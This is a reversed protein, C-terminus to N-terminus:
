PERLALKDLYPLLETEPKALGLRSVGLIARALYRSMVEGFDKLNIEANKSPLKFQKKLAEGHVILSRLKYGVRIDNFIDQREQPTSGILNAARLSLKYSIEQNNETLLAELGIFTDIIGDEPAERDYSGNFRRLALGLRRDVSDLISSHRDWLERLASVDEEAFRYTHPGFRSATVLRQTGPFGYAWGLKRMVAHENIQIRGPKLLRLACVLNQLQKLYGWYEKGGENSNALGYVKAVFDHPSLSRHDSANEGDADWIGRCEEENYNRIEFDKLRIPSVSSGFGKLVSALEVQCIGDVVQDSLAKTAARLMEDSVHPGGASEVLEVVPDLFFAQDIGAFKGVAVHSALAQIGAKLEPLNRLDDYRSLVFWTWDVAQEVKVSTNIAFRGPEDQISFSPILRHKRETRETTSRENQLLRLATGFFDLLAREFAPAGRRPPLPKAYPELRVAHGM